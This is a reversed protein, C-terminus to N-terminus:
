QSELSKRLSELLPRILIKAQSEMWKELVNNVPFDIPVLYKEYVWETDDVLQNFKSEDGVISRLISSLVDSFDAVIHLVKAASLRKDDEYRDRLSTIAAELQQKFM